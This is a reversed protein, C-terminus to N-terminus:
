TRGNFLLYCGNACYAWLVRTTKHRVVINELM